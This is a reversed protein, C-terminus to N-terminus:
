VGRRRTIQKWSLMFWALVRPLTLIWALGLSLIALPVATAAYIKSTNKISSLDTTMSFLSAIYSLPIFATALWTLRAVNSNDQQGRRSDEISIIATVVSTLRDLRRQCEEIASLARLFDPRYALIRPMPEEKTTNNFCQCPAQPPAAAQVVPSTTSQSYSIDQCSFKFVRQLSASLMEHYLPM